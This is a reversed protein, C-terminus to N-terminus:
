LSRIISKSRMKYCDWVNLCPGDNLVCKGGGWYEPRWNPCNRNVTNRPDKTM